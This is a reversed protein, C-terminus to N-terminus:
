EAQAGPGLPPLPGDIEVPIRELTGDPHVAYRGLWRWAYPSAGIVRTQDPTLVACEGEPLVAIFFRVQEGTTADWIRATGDDSATLIHHGDPSWAVARVWDTHTLTLRPKPTDERTTADWIHATGDESATLIHHGDPSWAVATLGDKDAHTLTLTNTGTTADWIRATGDISATLIHHGDPSWAVSTVWGVRTLTNTGTTADWIRATGSRSATLIHHGDPSWAVARARDIHTLTLTNTGTTADWIRVTGDMSATLIHHGDPSWAVARVWDTHTLTLINTGTTADWIRATGSRSATLIHHGDPSWAVSTIRDKPALTLTLTNDGTTADWIRATGSRSATLIHTGNPSWAVEKTEADHILALTLTNDGTIADWIHATGGESATLIYRGDRSYAMAKLIRNPTLTLTLTNDGTTADWVHAMSDHTGTLIYRGDDSWAIAEIISNTTLTLTNDGTRSDWIHATGGRTGTLIYRGDPSWAVATVSNTHTLTLTDDGTTADWIHATGESSGTLIHRGDPSWAVATVWHAPILTHTLTLTNDGTTADWIHATGDGGTLIHRGDPSWAIANIVSNITLTLTNDGTTTDWIRATGDGSGTLIHTGDPSWTVTTVYKSHGGLIQAKPLIRLPDHKTLPATMVDSLQQHCGTTHLLQTRYRTAKDLSAGKIDCHRFVTSALDADDLNARTLTCHEFLTRRMSAGVADIYDLRAHRIRADDLRASRLSVGALILPTKESGITWGRLDSDSLNLADPRPHPTGKELARLTYAFVNTRATASAHGGLRELRALVRRRMAPSLRDILEAFFAFTEDSPRTIDWAELAEDESEAELSDALRKALFYELLSSHAFSFDDGRRALFTATRFDQKWQDPMRGQYHLEMDPHTHLFEILWDEMQDATWTRSGSRWIQWALHTMLQIKHRPILSHKGDDRRLWKNVFREYLDVSRVQQGFSLDEDITLLVQRIMNLLVPQSALERLNHVSRITELLRDTNAEPINRRLYERIQDEDFPLMTLVLYDKGHTRESEEGNAFFAEDNMTRFYQTRCSLLLHTGPPEAGSNPVNLTLVELLSRTLRQGDGPSLHVLAEDLGDFVVLAPESRIADLMDDVMVASKTSASLLHTLVTRLGFDALGTPSLDRLDFYFPLPVQEGFKRRELLKRTLLIASTTKGTGLDGLLACLRSSDGTSECAWTVLHKVVDTIDAFPEPGIGEEGNRGQTQEFLERKARAPVAEATLQLRAHASLEEAIEDPTLRPESTHAYAQRNTLEREIMGLVNNAFDQEATRGADQAQSFSHGPVIDRRDFPTFSAGPGINELKAIIPHPHKAHVREAERGELLYENSVLVIAIELESVRRNLTEDIVEGVSVDDPHFFLANYRDKLGTKITRKLLKVCPVASEGDEKLFSVYIRLSLKEESM